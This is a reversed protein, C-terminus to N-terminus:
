NVKLPETSPVQQFAKTLILPATAGINVALIPTLSVGSGSYVLVLAGGLLWSVLTVFWYGLSRSWDPAGKHLERRLGIWTIAEAFAGGLVGCGFAVWLSM